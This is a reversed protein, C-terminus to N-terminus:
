SSRSRGQVSAIPVCQVVEKPDVDPLIIAPDNGGLELTLSKLNPGCSSMIKRGTVTSGTMSIRPIRPHDVIWSGSFILTHLILSRYSYIASRTYVYLKDDGSLVSLVGPPLVSQALQVFKISSLPAFSSPKIIIVNGTMVAPALKFATMALPFSLGM